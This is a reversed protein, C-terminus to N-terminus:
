ATSKRACDICIRRMRHYGNTIPSFAYTGPELPTECVWCPKEKRLKVKTWICGRVRDGLFGGDDGFPDGRQVFSFITM